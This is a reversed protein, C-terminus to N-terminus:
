PALSAKVMTDERTHHKHDPGYSYSTTANEPLHRVLGDMLGNALATEIGYSMILILQRLADFFYHSDACKSAHGGLCM